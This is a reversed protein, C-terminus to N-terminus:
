RVRRGEMKEGGEKLLSPSISTLSLPPPPHPPPAVQERKTDKQETKQMDNHAKM